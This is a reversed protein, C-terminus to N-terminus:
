VWGLVPFPCMWFPSSCVLRRLWCQHLFGWYFLSLVFAVVYWFSLIWWSWTLKMGHIFPHNLMHLDIFTISCMLLLLSFFWMILEISASFAKSSIWCCKMIFARLFSPIPPIYRLMIFTVYPLDIALMRSLQSFSFGNGRFDPVLFPHGTEGSRNLM